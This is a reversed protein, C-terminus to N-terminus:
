DDEGLVFSGDRTYYSQGGRYRSGGERYESPGSNRGQGYGFDPKRYTSRKRTAVPANAVLDFAEKAKDEPVMWCKDRANWKGGLLRLQEKVPFTNGSVPVMKTM